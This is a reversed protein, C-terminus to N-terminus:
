RESSPDAKKADSALVKLESIKIKEVRNKAMYPYYLCFKGNDKHKPHFAMGLFGREDGLWPTAM